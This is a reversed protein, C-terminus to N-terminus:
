IDKVAAVIKELKEYHSGKWYLRGCRTCRSFDDYYLKTRPELLHEIATKEVHEIEGNCELCLTFPSICKSLDFRRVVEEIQKLPSSSRVWYGHTVATYKLIGIDRTLVIRKNESAIAVIQEDTYDNRYLSDLGLMRLYRALRGLHVDLIFAIKRLPKPRLRLVPKIDFSEFVPYVAIDDGNKIRHTFAVSTGNVLILDIETHPVGISEILDKVGPSGNFSAEFRVKRRQSPLFDNLEEYFRITVIKPILTNL